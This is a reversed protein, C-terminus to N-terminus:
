QLETEYVDHGKGFSFSGTTQLRSQGRPSQAERVLAFCNEAHNLSRLLMEVSRLDEAVGALNIGTNITDGHVAGQFQQLSVSQNVFEVQHMHLAFFVKVFSTRLTVVNVHGAQAASLNKLKLAVEEIPELSLDLTVAAKVDHYRTQFDAAVTGLAAAVRRLLRQLYNCGAQWSFDTAIKVRRIACSLIIKRETNCSLQL